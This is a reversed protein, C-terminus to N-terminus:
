HDRRRDDHFKLDAAIFDEGPVHNSVAARAKTRIPINPVTGGPDLAQNLAFALRVGARALQTGVALKAASVYAATLIYQGKLDPKPLRGYSTSVAVAWAEEAWDASTGRYWTRFRARTITGTLASAVTAANTGHSAVFQSDWFAHLNGTGLAAASVTKANGGSDKDDASHLPQHLDGIFHLVYKLALLQEAADVAPSKLEALAENIKDVHCNKAPGASAPTGAPLKPFGFCADRLTGGNVEIDAFHWQHTAGYATGSSARYADAWTAEEALSHGTLPSSDQALLADIAARAKTTLFQGAIM